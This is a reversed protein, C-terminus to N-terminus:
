DHNYTKYHAPKAIDFLIFIQMNANYRDIYRGYQPKVSRREIIILILDTCLPFCRRHHFGLSAPKM